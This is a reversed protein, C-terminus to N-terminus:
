PPDTAASGIGPATVATGRVDDIGAFDGEFVIRPSPTRGVFRKNTRDLQRM